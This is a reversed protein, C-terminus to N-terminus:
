KRVKIQNMAEELLAPTNINRKIWPDQTLVYNIKEPFMQLVAKAGKDLAVEFMFKRCWAPFITPHGRSQGDSPVTIFDPKEKWRKILELVTEINILPHDTPWLMFASDEDISNLALRISSLPGDDPSPNEIFFGGISNVYDAGVFDKKQGVFFMKNLDSNCAQLKSVIHELFTKDGIKVHQKLQGMRRSFGAMLVISVLRM